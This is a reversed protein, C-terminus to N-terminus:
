PHILQQRLATKLKELDDSDNIITLDCKTKVDDMSLTNADGGISHMEAAEDHMFAAFSKRDDIARQEGRAAANIQLRRYRLEPNADIWIVLGAHAHVADAEGPNRLSALALGAFRDAQTAFMKLAMEVLVGQGHERRWAASLTRMQERSLPLGRRRLEDRLIDSVSIFCFGYDDALIRGVTDKGSGNTGALGILHPITYGAM